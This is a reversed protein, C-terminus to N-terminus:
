RKRSVPIAATAAGAAFEGKVFSPTLELPLPVSLKGISIAMERVSNVSSGAATIHMVGNRRM